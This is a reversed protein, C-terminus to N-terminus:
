LGKKCVFGAGKRIYYIVNLWVPALGERSKKGNNGNKLFVQPNKTCKEMRQHNQYIKTLINGKRTYM